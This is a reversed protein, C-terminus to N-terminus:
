LQRRNGAYNQRRFGGDTGALRSGNQITTLIGPTNVAMGEVGCFLNAGNIENPNNDFQLYTLSDYVQNAISISFTFTKNDCVCTM